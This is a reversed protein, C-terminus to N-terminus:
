TKLKFHIGFLLEINLTVNKLLLLKKPEASITDRIIIIMKRPADILKWVKKTCANLITTSEQFNM